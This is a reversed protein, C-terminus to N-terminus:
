ARRLVQDLQGADSRSRTISVVLAVEMGSEPAVVRPTIPTLSDRLPMPAADPPTEFGGRRLHIERSLVPDFALTTEAVEGSMLHLRLHMLAPAGAAAAPFVSRFTVRGAADAVQRGSLAKAPGQHMVDVRTGPLPVGSDCVVQLRLTMPLGLGDAALTDRLLAPVHPATEPQSTLLCVQSSILGVDRLEEEVAPPVRVAHLPALSLAKLLARRDLPTLPRM